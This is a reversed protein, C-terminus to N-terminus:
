NAIKLLRLTSKLIPSAAPDDFFSRFLRNVIGTHREHDARFAAVGTAAKLRNDAAAELAAGHLKKIEALRVLADQRARGAEDMEAWGTAYITASKVGAAAAEELVALTVELASYAEM